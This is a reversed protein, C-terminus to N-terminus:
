ARRRRRLLLLASGGLAILSCPEPVANVTMIKFNDASADGTIFLESFTMSNDPADYSSTGVWSLTDSATGPIWYATTVPAFTPGNHAGGSSALENWPGVPLGSTLTFDSIPSTGPGAVDGFILWDWGMGAVWPSSSQDVSLTMAYQFVGGGLTTKVYSLNLSAASALSATSGLVLCAILCRRM